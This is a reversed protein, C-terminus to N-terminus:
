YVANYIKLETLTEKLENDSLTPLLGFSNDALRGKGFGTNFFQKNYKHSLYSDLLCQLTNFDKFNNSFALALVNFNNEFFHTQMTTVSHLLLLQFTKQYYSGDFLSLNRNKTISLFLVQLTSDNKQVVSYDILNHRYCKIRSTQDSIYIFRFQFDISTDSISKNKQYNLNSIRTLSNISDETLTKDNSYLDSILTLDDNGKVLLNLLSDAIYRNFTSSDQSYVSTCSYLFLIAFWKKM